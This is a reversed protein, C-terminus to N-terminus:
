RGRNDPGIKAFASVDGVTIIVLNPGVSCDLNPHFSLLRYKRLSASVSGAGRGPLVVAQFPNISSSPDLPIEEGKTM